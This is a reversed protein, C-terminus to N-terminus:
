LKILLFTICSHYFQRVRWEDLTFGSQNYFISEPGSVVRELFDYVPLRIDVSYDGDLHDPLNDDVIEELDLVLSCAQANMNHSAVIFSLVQAIAVDDENNELDSADSPSDLADAM